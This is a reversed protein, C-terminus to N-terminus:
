AALRYIKLEFPKIVQRQWRVCSPPVPPLSAVKRARNVARLVAFMQRTVGGYPEFPSRNFERELRETSRNATALVLFHNKLERYARRSIRVSAKNNYSM